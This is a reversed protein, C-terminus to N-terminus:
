ALWCSTRKQFFSGFFKQKILVKGTANGLGRGVRIGDHWRRGADVVQRAELKDLAQCGM